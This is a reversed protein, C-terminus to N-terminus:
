EKRLKKLIANEKKLKYKLHQIAAVLKINSHYIKNYNEEVRIRNDKTTICVNDLVPMTRTQGALVGGDYMVRVLESRIIKISEM